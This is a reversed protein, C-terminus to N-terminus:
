QMQILVDLSCMSEEFSEGLSEELSEDISVTWHHVALYHPKVVTKQNGNAMM